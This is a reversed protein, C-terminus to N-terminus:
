LKKVRETERDDVTFSGDNLKELRNNLQALLDLMKDKDLIEQEQNTIVEDDTFIIYSSYLDQITQHLNMLEEDAAIFDIDYDYANTEENYTCGWIPGAWVDLM